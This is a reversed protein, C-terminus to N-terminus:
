SAGVETLKHGTQAGMRKTAVQADTACLSQRAAQVTESGRNSTMIPACSSTCSGELPLSAKMSKYYNM